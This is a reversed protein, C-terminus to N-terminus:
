FLAPQPGVGSELGQSWADQEVGGWDVEFLASDAPLESTEPKVLEFPPAVDCRGARSHLDESAPQWAEAAAAFPDSPGNPNARAALAFPDEASGVSVAFPDDNAAGAALPTSKADWTAQLPLPAAAPEGAQEFLHLLEQEELPQEPLDDLLDLLDDVQPRSLDSPTESFAEDSATVVLPSQRESSSVFEYREVTEPEYSVAIEEGELVLLDEQGFREPEWHPEVLVPASEELEEIEDVPVWDDDQAAPISVVDGAFHPLRRSVREGEDLLWQAQQLSLWGLLRATSFLSIRVGRKASLRQSEQLRQLRRRSVGLRKTLAVFLRDSLYIHM